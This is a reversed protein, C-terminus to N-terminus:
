FYEIYVIFFQVMNLMQVQKENGASYASIGHRKMHNKIAITCKLKRTSERTAEWPKGPPEDPLSDLSTLDPLFLCELTSRPCSGTERDLSICLIKSSNQLYQFQTSGLFVSGLGTYWCSRVNTQSKLSWLSCAPAAWVLSRVAVPSMGLCLERSVGVSMLVGM